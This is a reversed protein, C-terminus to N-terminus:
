DIPFYAFGAGRKSYVACLIRTNEATGAGLAVIPLFGCLGVIDGAHCNLLQSEVRRLYYEPTGCQREYLETGRQDYVYVSSIKKPSRTLNFVVNPADQALPDETSRVLYQIRKESTVGSMQTRMPTLRESVM